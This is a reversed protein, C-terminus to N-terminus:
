RPAARGPAAGAERGSWAPNNPKQWAAALTKAQRDSMRVFVFTKGLMAVQQRLVGGDPGVWLKGRINDDDHTAGPESRFVVVMTRVSRDDWSIVAEREVCAHLIERCDAGRRSLYEMPDYVEATWRQGLRLGPLTVQPSLPDKVVAAGPAAARFDVALMSSTSVSLLLADGEVSGRLKVLDDVKRADMYVPTPAGPGSLEQLKTVQAASLQRVGSEFRSLRGFPDFDLESHSEILLNTDPLSMGGLWARLSSPVLSRLPLDLQILSNVRVLDQGTPQTEVLAWGLPKEHAGDYWGVWWGVVPSTKQAQLISASSPPEGFWFSPAVKTTILWTMASLWLVIVTINYWRSHM